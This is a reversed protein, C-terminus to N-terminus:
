LNLIILITQLTKWPDSIFYTKKVNEKMLFDTWGESLLEPEKRLRAESQGDQLNWGVDNLSAMDLWIARQKICFFYIFVQNSEQSPKKCQKLLEHGSPQPLPSSIVEALFIGLITTACLQLYPLNPTMPTWWFIMWPGGEMGKPGLLEQRILSKFSVDLFLSSPIVFTTSPLGSRWM